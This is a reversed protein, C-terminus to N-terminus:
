SEAQRKSAQMPFDSDSGQQALMNVARWANCTCIGPAGMPRARPQHGHTSYAGNSGITRSHHSLASVHQRAQLGLM